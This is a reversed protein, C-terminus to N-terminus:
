HTISLAEDHMTMVHCLCSCLRGKGQQPCGGVGLPGGQLAPEPTNLADSFTALSAPTVMVPYASSVISAAM